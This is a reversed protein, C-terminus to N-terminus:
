FQQIESYETSIDINKAQKLPVKPCDFVHGKQMFFM